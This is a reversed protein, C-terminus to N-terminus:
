SSNKGLYSNENIKGTKESSDTLTVDAHYKLLVEVSKVADKSVNGCALMLPTKNDQDTANISSGHEM